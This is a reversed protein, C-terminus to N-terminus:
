SKVSNSGGDHHRPNKIKGRLCCWRFLDRLGFIEQIFIKTVSYQYQSQDNWDDVDNGTVSDIRTRMQNHNGAREVNWM